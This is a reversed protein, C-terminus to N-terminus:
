GFWNVTICPIENIKIAMGFSFSDFGGAAILITARWQIYHFDDVVDKRAPVKKTQRRTM